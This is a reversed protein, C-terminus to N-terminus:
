EDFASDALDFACPSVFGDIAELNVEVLVVSKTEGLGRYWLTSTLSDDLSSSSSLSNNGGDNRSEFRPHLRALAQLTRLPVKNCRSIM